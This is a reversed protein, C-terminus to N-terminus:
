ITWQRFCLLLSSLSTLSNCCLMSHRPLTCAAVCATISEVRVLKMDPGKNVELIYPRLDAEVAVDIGFHQFRIADYFCRMGLDNCVQLAPLAGCHAIFAQLLRVRSGRIIVIIAVVVM